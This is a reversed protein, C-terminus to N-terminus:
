NDCGEDPCTDGTFCVVSNISPPDSVWGTCIGAPCVPVWRSAILTYQLNFEIGCTECTPLGSPNLSCWYYNVPDPNVSQAYCQSDPDVTNGNCSIYDDDTYSHIAQPYTYSFCTALAVGSIGFILLCALICSITLCNNKILLKKM